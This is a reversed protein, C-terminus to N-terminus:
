FVAALASRSITINVTAFAYDASLFGTEICAMARTVDIVIGRCKAGRGAM